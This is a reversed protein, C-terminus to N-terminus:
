RLARILYGDLGIENVIVPNTSSETFEVQVVDGLVDNDIGTSKTESALGTFTLAYSRAVSASMDKYFIFTLTATTNECKAWLRRPRKTWRPLRFNLASSKWGVAIAAGNDSTGSYIKRVGGSNDLGLYTLGDVGLYGSTFGVWDGEYPGHWRYLQTDFVYTRDNATQGARTYSFYYYRGDSVGATWPRRAAPIAKLTPQIPVSVDVIGGGRWMLIRGSNDFGGMGDHWLMSDSTVAISENSLTGAGPHARQLAFSNNDTGFLIWLDGETFLFLQGFASKIGSPLYAYRRGVYILGGNGGVPAATTPFNTSSNVDSHRLGHPDFMQSYLWLKEYHMAVFRSPPAEEWVQFVGNAYKMSGGAGLTLYTTGLWDVARMKDSGSAAEVTGKNVWAGSEDSDLAMTIIAPFDRVGGTSSGSTRQM